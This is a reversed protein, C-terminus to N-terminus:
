GPPNADPPTEEGPPPPPSPTARTKEPSAGADKGAKVRRKKWASKKRTESADPSFYWSVFWAAVCALVLCGFIVAIMVGPSRMWESGATWAKWLEWTVALMAMPIMLILFAPVMFSLVITFYTFLRWPLSEDGLQTANISKLRDIFASHQRPSPRGRGVLVCFWIFVGSAAMDVIAVEWMPRGLLYYVLLSGAFWAVCVLGGLAVALSVIFGFINGLLNM